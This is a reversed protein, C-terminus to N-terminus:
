ILSKCDLILPRLSHSSPIYTKNILGVATTSDSEIEIHQFGLSVVLHFGDRLAILEAALVISNGIKRSLGALREGNSNCILGGFYPLGPNSTTAGDIERSPALGLWNGSRKKLNNHFMPCTALFEIAKDRMSEIIDASYPNNLDPHTFRNRDLWICWIIFPFLCNGLIGALPSSDSSSYNDWLLSSITVSEDDQDLFPPSFRNWVIELKPCDRFPHLFSGIGRFSLYQLSFSKDDLLLERAPLVWPSLAM